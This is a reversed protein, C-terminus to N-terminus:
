RSSPWMAANLQQELQRHAAEMQTLRAQMEPSMAAIANGNNCTANNTTQPPQATALGDHPAGHALGQASAAGSGHQAGTSAQGQVPIAVGQLPSAQQHQYNAPMSFLNGDEGLPAYSQNQQWYANSRNNPTASSM